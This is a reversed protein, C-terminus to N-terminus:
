WGECGARAALLPGPPRVVRDRDLSEGRPELREIGHGALQDVHRRLRLQFGVNEVDTPVLSKRSGTNAKSPLSAVNKLDATGGLLPSWKVTVKGCGLCTWAISTSVPM